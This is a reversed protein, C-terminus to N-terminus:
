DNVPELDPYTSFTQWSSKSGMAKDKFKNMQRWAIRAKRKRQQGNNSTMRNTINNKSWRFVEHPQWGAGWRYPYSSIRMITEFRNNFANWFYPGGGYSYSYAGADTGESAAGSGEFAFLDEASNWARTLRFDIENTVGRHWVTGPQFPAGPDQSLYDDAFSEALDIGIQEAASKNNNVLDTRENRLRTKEDETPGDVVM